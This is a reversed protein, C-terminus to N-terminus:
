GEENEPADADIRALYTTRPKTGLEELLAYHRPEHRAAAVESEADRLDGFRIARTPCVSQCATVVDGSGLPRGELKAEIGARQIRQVCYTCKEM